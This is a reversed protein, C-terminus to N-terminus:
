SNRGRGCDQVVGGEPREVFPVPPVRYVVRIEEDGVEVEKVLARIVERRTAWDAERLGSDIGDAFEQLKGIVLRLEVRRASADSEARAESELRGLRERAARLRPEFEEKELLGESYGDILRSIGRQLAGVRKALAEADVGGATAARGELRREYEQEVRSPDALLACVDAWVAAELEEARVSRMRCLKQGDEGVQRRGNCGYYGSGRQGGAGRRGGQGSCAYGCRRCVVLGSLLYRAGAKRVRSRIRNEALQTAVQEFLERSVLAPVAIVV